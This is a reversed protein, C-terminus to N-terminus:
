WASRTPFPRPPAGQEIQRVFEGVMWTRLARVEPPSALTLFRADRCLADAEHVAEDLEQVDKAAAAPVPLVITTTTRGAARADQALRRGLHRAHAHRGLLGSILEGLGSSRQQGDMLQLERILEDLHDDQRLSLVVPCDALVVRHWGPPLVDAPVASTTAVPTRTPGAPEDSVVEALEVWVQKGAASEQVGWSAALLAVLVLGRGTAAELDLLADDTAGPLSRPMVAAAPVNGCDLVGLRLGGPTRELTVTLLHSGSHLVANTALETVCLAADEVLADRGWARAGDAVFHRATPVSAPHAALTLRLVPAAAESETVAVAESWVPGSPSAGARWRGCGRQPPAGDRVRDDPVDEEDLPQPASVAM